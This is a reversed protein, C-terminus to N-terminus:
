AFQLRADATRYDDADGAWGARALARQHIGHRAFQAPLPASGSDDRHVRGAPAGAAGYQAVANAHEVMMRIRTDKDTGHSRAPCGTPQCRGGAVHGRQQIRCASIQYDDLRHAHPLVFHLDRSQRLDGHHHQHRAHAVIHLGDFRADHFDRVDERDVFGVLRAGRLHLMLNLAHEAQHM